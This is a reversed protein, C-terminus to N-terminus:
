PKEVSIALAETARFVVEDGLKAKTLDVDKRVKFTKTTHDPFKLTVKRKELDISEVRATIEVTSAVVGGPKAGVPALVVAATEHDRRPEGRPRVFVVLEEVMLVKVQDGVQIQGFNVVDPGAKLTEKTGDPLLLTVKRTAADLATVKATIKHTEVATGGPVGKETYVDSTSDVNSTSCSTLALTAPLFALATLKQLKTKM